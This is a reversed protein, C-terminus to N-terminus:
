LKEILQILFPILKSLFQNPYHAGGYFYKHLGYASHFVDDLRKFGLQQMVSPLEPHTTQYIRLMSVFRKRKDDPKFVETPYRSNVLASIAGWIKEGAQVYDGQNFLSHAHKLHDLLRQSYLSQSM